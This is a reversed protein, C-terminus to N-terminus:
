LDRWDTSQVWTGTYVPALTTSSRRSSRASWGGNRGGGSGSQRTGPTFGTSGPADLSARCGEGDDARFSLRHGARVSDSNPAGSLATKMLHLRYRLSLRSSLMLENSWPFAWAGGGKNRTGWEQRHPAETVIGDVEVYVVCLHVNHLSVPPQAWREAVGGGNSACYDEWRVAKGNERQRISNESTRMAPRSATTVTLHDHPVRLRSLLDSDALVCEEFPLTAAARTCSDSELSGTVRSGKGQRGERLSAGTFRGENAAAVTALPVEVVLLACQLRRQLLCLLYHPIPVVCGTAREQLTTVTTPGTLGDVVCLPVVDVTRRGREVVTEAKDKMVGTYPATGTSFKPVFASAKRQHTELVPSSSAASENCRENAAEGRNDAGGDEDAPPFTYAECVAYVDAMSACALVEVRAVAAMVAQQRARLQEEVANLSAFPAALDPSGSQLTSQSSHSPDLRQPSHEVLSSPRYAAETVWQREVALTFCALSFSACAPGYLFLVRGGRLAHSAAVEYSYQRLPLRMAAASLPGGLLTSSLPLPSSTLLCVSNVGLESKVGSCTAPAAASTSACSTPPRASRSSLASDYLRQATDAQGVHHLLSPFFQVPTAHLRQIV